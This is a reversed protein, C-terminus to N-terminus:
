EPCQHPLSIYRAWWHQLLEGLRMKAGVEGGPEIDFAAADLGIRGKGGFDSNWIYGLVRSRIFYVTTLDAPEGCKEEHRTISSGGGYQVISNQFLGEM